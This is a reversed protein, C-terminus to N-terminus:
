NFFSISTLFNTVENKAKGYLTLPNCPSDEKIPLTLKEIGYENCTSSFIFKQGGLLFFKKIFYKTKEKWDNNIPDNYFKKPETYWALHIVIDPKVEDLVRDLFIKDLFNGKYNKTTGKKTSSITYINFKKRNIKKLVNSGIFGFAGTVLIKKM